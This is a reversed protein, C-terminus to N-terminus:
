QLASKTLNFDHLIKLNFYNDRSIYWTYPQGGNANSLATETLM